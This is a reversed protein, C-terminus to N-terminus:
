YFVSKECPYAVEEDFKDDIVEPMCFYEMMYHPIRSTPNLNDWCYNLSTQYIRLDIPKYKCTEYWDSLEVEDDKKVNMIM